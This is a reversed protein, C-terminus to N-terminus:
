ARQARVQNITEIERRHMALKMRVQLSELEAQKKEQEEHHCLSLNVGSIGDEKCSQTSSISSVGSVSSSPQELDIKDDRDDLGGVSSTESYHSIAPSSAM